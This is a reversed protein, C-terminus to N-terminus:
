LQEKTQVVSPNDSRLTGNKTRYQPLAKDFNVSAEYVIRRSDLNIILASLSQTSSDLDLFFSSM